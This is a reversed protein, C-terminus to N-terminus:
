RLEYRADDAEVHQTMYDLAVHGRAVAGETESNYEIHDAHLRANEYIVDVNGDGYYIKGLWRQTDAALSAEGGRKPPVLQPKATTQALASRPAMFVVRALVLLLGFKPPPPLITSNPM